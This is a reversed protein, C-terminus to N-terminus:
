AREQHGGATLIEALYDALASVTPRDWVITAEVSIGLWDELDASMGVAMVSTLGYAEMPRDPDISDAPNATLEGIRAILWTEIERATPHHTM